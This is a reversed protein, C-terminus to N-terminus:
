RLSKWLHVKIAGTRFSGNRRMGIQKSRWQTTNDRLNGAQNYNQDARAQLVGSIASECRFKRFHRWQVVLHILETTNEARHFCTRFYVWWSLRSNRDMAHFLQPTNINQARVHLRIASNVWPWLYHQYQDYHRECLLTPKTMEDGM